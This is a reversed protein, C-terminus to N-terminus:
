EYDGWMMQQGETQERGAAEQILERFIRENTQQFSLSTKGMQRSLSENRFAAGNYSDTPDARPLVVDTLDSLEEFKGNFHLAVTDQELDVVVAFPVKKELNEAIEKTIETFLMKDKLAGPFFYTGKMQALLPAACIDQKETRPRRFADKLGRLYDAAEFPYSFGGAYKSYFYFDEGDEHVTYVARTDMVFDAEKM